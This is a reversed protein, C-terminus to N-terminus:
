KAELQPYENRCYTYMRELVEINTINDPNPHVTVWVAEEHVVIFRHTGQDTIFMEPGQIHMSVGANDYVSIKGTQIFLPHEFRHVRTTLVTDAPLTLKRVYLGPPFFHELKEGPIEVGYPKFKGGNAMIWAEAFDIKESPTLVTLGSESALELGNFDILDGAM